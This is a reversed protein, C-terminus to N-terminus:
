YTSYSFDLNNTNSNSNSFDKFELQEISTTDNLHKKNDINSSTSLTQNSNSSILSAMYQKLEDKMKKNANDAKNKNDISEIIDNYKKAPINVMDKVKPITLNTKLFTFFYHILAILIVSIIIWQVIIVLM